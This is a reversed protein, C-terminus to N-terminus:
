VRNVQPDYRCSIKYHRVFSIVCIPVCVRDLGEDTNNNNNNNRQINVSDHIAENLGGFFFKFGTRV